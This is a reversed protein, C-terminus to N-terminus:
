SLLYGVISAIVTVSAIMIIAGMIRFPVFYRQWWPDEPNSVLPIDNKGFYKNAKQPMFVALFGLLLGTIAGITNILYALPPIEISATAM